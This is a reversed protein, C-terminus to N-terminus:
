NWTNVRGSWLDKGESIQLQKMQSVSTLCIGNKLFFLIAAFIVIDKIKSDSVKVCISHVVNM